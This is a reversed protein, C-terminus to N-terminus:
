LAFVAASTGYVASADILYILGGLAPGVIVAGKKSASTWAIARTFIGREVLGPLLSRLAPNQFAQTTGLGFACAYIVTSNLWAGYSGAALVVAIACQVVQCAFAIRLRDHRDAVHGAYLTFLVQSLFQVLGVLGLSLASGTIEYLQWGIAIVLFQHGLTSAVEGAFYWRFARIAFLDPM